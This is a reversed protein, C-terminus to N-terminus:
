KLFLQARGSSPHSMQSRKVSIKGHELDVTELGKNVTLGPCLQQVCVYHVDKSALTNVRLMDHHMLGNALVHSSCTLSM